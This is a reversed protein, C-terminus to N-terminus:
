KSYAALRKTDRCHVVCRLSARFVDGMLCLSQGFCDTRHLRTTVQRLEPGWESLQGKIVQHLIRVYFWISLSHQSRPHLWFVEVAHTVAAAQPLSLSKAQSARRASTLVRLNSHSSMCTNWICQMQCHAVCQRYVVAAVKALSQSSSSLGSVQTQQCTRCIANRYLILGQEHPQLRGHCGLRYCLFYLPKHLWVNAPQLLTHHSDPENCVM